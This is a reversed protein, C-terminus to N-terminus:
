PMHDFVHKAFRQAAVKGPLFVTVYTKGKRFFVTAHANASANTGAWMYAEDGLGTLRTKTSRKQINDSATVLGQFTEIPNTLIRYESIQVAGTVGARTLRISESYLAPDDNTVLGEGIKWQPEKTKITDELRGIWEPRGQGFVLGTSLLLLIIPTLNLLKQLMMEPTGKPPVLVKSATDRCFKTHIQDPFFAAM